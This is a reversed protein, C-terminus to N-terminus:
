EGTFQADRRQIFSLIGEQADKSKMVAPMEDSVHKFAIEQSQM